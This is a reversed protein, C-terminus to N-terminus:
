QRERERHLREFFGIRRETSLVFGCRRKGGILQILTREAQALFQKSSLDVL